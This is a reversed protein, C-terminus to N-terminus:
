KFIILLYEAGEKSFNYMMNNEPTSSQHFTIKDNEMNVGGTTGKDTVVAANIIYYGEGNEIFPSNKKMVLALKPHFGVNITSIRNGTGYITHVIFPTTARDKEELTLHMGIDKIHNGLISDIIANDSVFDSRKPKDTALWQSLGLNQTKNTSAM